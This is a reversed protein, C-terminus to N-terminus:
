FVEQAKDGEPLSPAPITWSRHTHIHMAWPLCRLQPKKRFNSIERTAVPTHKPPGLWTETKQVGLATPVRRIDKSPRSLRWCSLYDNLESTSSMRSRHARHDCVKRLALDGFSPGFTASPRPWHGSFIDSSINKTYGQCCSDGVHSM